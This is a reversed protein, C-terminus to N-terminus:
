VCTQLHTFMETTMWFTRAPQVLLSNWMQKERRVLRTQELLDFKLINVCHPFLVTYRLKHALTKNAKRFLLKLNWRPSYSPYIKLPRGTRERQRGSHRKPCCFRSYHLNGPLPPCMTRMFNLHGQLTFYGGFIIVKYSRGEMVKSISFYLLFFPKARNDM